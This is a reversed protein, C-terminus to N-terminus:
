FISHKAECPAIFDVKRGAVLFVNNFNNNKTLKLNQEYFIINNIEYKMNIKQSDLSFDVLSTNKEM